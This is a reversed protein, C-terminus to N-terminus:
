AARRSALQGVPCVRTATLTENIEKLDLLTGGRAQALTLRKCIREIQRYSSWIEMAMILLTIPVILLIVRIPILLNV